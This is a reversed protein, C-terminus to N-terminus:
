LICKIRLKLAVGAQVLERCTVLTTYQIDDADLPLQTGETCTGTQPLVSTPHIHDHSDTVFDHALTFELLAQIRQSSM